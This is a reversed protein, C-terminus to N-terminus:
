KDIDKTKAPNKEYAKMMKGITAKKDALRIYKHMNAYRREDWGSSQISDEIERLRLVVEEPKNSEIDRIVFEVIDSLKNKAGDYDEQKLGFYNAVEFFLPDSYYPIKPILNDVDVSSKASLGDKEETPTSKTTEKSDVKPADSSVPNNPSVTITIQQANPSVTPQITEETMAKAV